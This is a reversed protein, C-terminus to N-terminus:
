KGNKAVGDPQIMVIGNTVVFKYHTIDCVLKLADYVDMWDYKEVCFWQSIQCSESFRKLFRVFGGQALASLM